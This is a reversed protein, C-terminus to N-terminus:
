TSLRRGHLQITKNQKALRIRHSGLDRSRQSLNRNPNMEKDLGAIFWEYLTENPAIPCLMGAVVKGKYKVLLYLGFKKDKNAHYFTQFFKWDPLPKKVRTKYVKRLIKYFEYVEEENQAIEIKAGNELSRAVQRRKSANLNEFLKEKPLQTNVIINLWDKREFGKKKLLEEDLIKTTSIGSKQTFM